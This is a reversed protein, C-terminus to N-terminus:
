EHLEYIYKFYLKQLIKLNKEIFFNNAKIEIQIYNKDYPSYILLFCLTLNTIALQFQIQYYTDCNKDIEFVNKRLIVGFNRAKGYLIWDNISRNHLYKPSKVEILARVKNNFVVYGDSTGSIWCFNPNVFGMSKRLILNSNKSNFLELAQNEYILNNKRLINTPHHPNYNATHERRRFKDRIYYRMNPNNRNLIFRKVESAAFTKYFKTRLPIYGNTLINITKEDSSVSENKIIKTSNGIKFENLSYKSCMMRKYLFLAEESSLHQFEM